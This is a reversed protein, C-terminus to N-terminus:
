RGLTFFIIARIVLYAILVYVILQHKALWRATREWISEPYAGVPENDLFRGIDQSFELANQYRKIKAVALAKTCIAALPKKIEPNLERLYHAPYEVETNNDAESDGVLSPHKGTLLFYLTAGLMYIDSLQDIEATAGRRQEPSMYAPTGIRTGQETGNVRTTPSDKAPKDAGSVEDVAEFLKAVGWDMLLVEGFEGVMINDPKIDRHIV